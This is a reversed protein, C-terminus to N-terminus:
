NGGPGGGGPGGGPGGGGSGGGPGGGPNGNNPLSAFGGTIHEESLTVFSDVHADAFAVNGTGLHRQALTERLALYDHDFAGYRRGGGDEDEGFADHFMSTASPSPLADFHPRRLFLNINYIYSLAVTREESLKTGWRDYPKVLDPTEHSPCALLEKQFLGWGPAEEDPDIHIKGNPLTIGIPNAPDFFLPLRGNNDDCYIQTVTAIQRLNNMCATMLSNARIRSVAPMTIGILILIIALVVLLEIVTFGRNRAGWKM